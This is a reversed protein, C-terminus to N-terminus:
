KGKKAPFKKQNLSVSGDEVSKIDEITYFADPNIQKIINIIQHARRRQTVIMIVKVEGKEGEANLSTLHYGNEELKSIMQPVNHKSIVRILVDGFSLKEEIFMGVFTGGAFGAAYAIMSIWNGLNQMIQGIAFLWILIEFFGILPAIYKFGKSIFIVRITGLSVDAVRALFILLPLVVWTLTQQDFLQLFM